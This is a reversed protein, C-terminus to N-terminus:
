TTKLSSLSSKHLDPRDKGGRFFVDDEAGVDEFNAGLNQWALVTLVLIPQAPFARATKSEASPIGAWGMKTKVEMGPVAGGGDKRHGKYNQLPRQVGETSYEFVGRLKTL